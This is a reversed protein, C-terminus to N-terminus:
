PVELLEEDGAATFHNSPERGVDGDILRDDEFSDLPLQLRWPFAPRPASLPWNGQWGWANSVDGASDGIWFLYCLYSVTM